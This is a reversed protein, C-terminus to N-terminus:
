MGLLRPKGLVFAPQPFLAGDLTNPFFCAGFYFALM